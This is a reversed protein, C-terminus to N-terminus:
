ETGNDCARLPERQRLTLRVIANESTLIHRDVSWLVNWMDVFLENMAFYVCQSM